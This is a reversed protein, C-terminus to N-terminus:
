GEVGENVWFERGGRLGMQGACSDEDSRFRVCEEEM